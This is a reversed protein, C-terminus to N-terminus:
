KVHVEIHDVQNVKLGCMEIRCVAERFPDYLKDGRVQCCPFQTYAFQIKSFLGRVMFVMVRKALSPPVDDSCSSLAQEFADLHSKIEGLKTFGVHILKGSHKDYVLDEGNTCNM